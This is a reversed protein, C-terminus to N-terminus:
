QDIRVEPADRGFTAMYPFPGTGSIYKFTFVGGAMGKVRLTRLQSSKSCYHNGSSICGCELLCVGVEEQEGVGGVGSGVLVVDGFQVPHRLVVRRCRKM